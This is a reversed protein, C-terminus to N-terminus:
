VRKRCCDGIKQLISRTDGFPDDDSKKTIIKIIVMLVILGIVGGMIYEIM